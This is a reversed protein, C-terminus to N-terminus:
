STDTTSPTPLTGSPANAQARFAESSPAEVEVSGEFKHPHLTISFYKEINFM